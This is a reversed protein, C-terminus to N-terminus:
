VGGYPNLISDLRTIHQVYQASIPGDLELADKVKEPDFHDENTSELILV